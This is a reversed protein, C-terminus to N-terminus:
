FDIEKIRYKFKEQTYIKIREIFHICTTNLKKGTTMKDGIDILRAIIKGDRLRLVRGISQLVRYISKSPSSFIVTDLAPINVGTSTTQVSAVIIADKYNNLNKRLEERITPSIEGSIYFVPRNTSKKILEYLKKGHEIFQFLILTNGTCRLAVDRIFENRKNSAVLYDLEAKYKMGKILACEDAPYKLLIATIDLDTVSGLEMLQKTTTVQYIPGFIGTIVTRNITKKDITGTLGVRWDANVCKELISQISQGTALHCEDGIVVDFGEFYKQQQKYISQWTSIKVQHTDEKSLGGMIKQCYNSVKWGNVGSYDEFDAYLQNVLNTNPVIILIKKGQQVLWRMFSYIILSKGSATPSLLTARKAQIARTIAEYQYDRVELLKGNTSLQLEDVFDMIDAENSYDEPYFCFDVEYDVQNDQLYKMLVDYLGLYLTKKQPNYLRIFGDWMGSKYSPMFKAGPVEFKFYDVLEQELGRDGYIRM